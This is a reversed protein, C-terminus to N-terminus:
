RCRTQWIYRVAESGIYESGVIDGDIIEEVEDHYSTIKETNENRKEEHPEKKLPPPPPPATTEDIRPLLDIFPYLKKQIDRAEAMPVAERLVVPSNEVANLADGETMQLSTMLLHSVRKKEEERGLRVLLLDVFPEPTM